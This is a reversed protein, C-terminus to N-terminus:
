IAKTSNKGKATVPHAMKRVQNELEGQIESQKRQDERLTLVAHEVQRDKHAWYGLLILIVVMVIGPITVWPQQWLIQLLRSLLLVQAVKSFNLLATLGYEAALTILNFIIGTSYLVFILWWPRLIGRLVRFWLKRPYRKDNPDPSVRYLIHLELWHLIRTWM